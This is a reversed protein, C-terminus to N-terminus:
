RIASGLVALLLFGPIAAIVIWLIIACVVAATTYVIAKDQPAWMLPPLGTYLLYFSYLGLISLIALAPIINFVGALWAATPFYSSVKMANAFNKTGGFVGALADIIFAMVFVGVFTLVYGVIASILAFVIGAGIIVSGIFGCAAPIAALIAVYNTFLYAADGPEGAIAPWETKPNMILNKVRDVLNM